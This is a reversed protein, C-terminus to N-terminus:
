VQTGQQGPTSGTTFAGVGTFTVSMTANDGSPANIQFSTIYADGQAIVTGVTWEAHGNDGIVGNENTASYNGAKAFKLTVLTKNTVANMYIAEGADSYLNEASVEWSINQPIVGNYDGNDKCSVETTNLTVSLSHSTAFGVPADGIFVMLTSGKVIESYNRIGAM